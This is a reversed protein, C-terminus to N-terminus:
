DERLKISEVLTYRPGEPLLESEMIDISQVKFEKIMVNALKRKMVLLSKYDQNNLRRKVRGLTIHAKFSHDNKLLGRPLLVEELQFSIKELIKRKDVVGLWLIRPWRQEPFFGLGKFSLPFSKQNKFNDKFALILSELKSSSIPGLFRLTLHLDELRTWKIKPFCSLSQELLLLYKQKIEEKIFSPLNIAIFIRRLSVM